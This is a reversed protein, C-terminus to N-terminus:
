EQDHPETPVRRYSGADSATGAESSIGLMGPLASMSRPMLTPMGYRVTRRAVREQLLEATRRMKLAGLLEALKHHFCLFNTVLGIQDGKDRLIAMVEEEKEVQLCATMEEEDDGKGNFFFWDEKKAALQLEASHLLRRGAGYKFDKSNELVYKPLPVQKFFKSFNRVAEQSGVYGSGVKRPRDSDCGESCRDIPEPEEKVRVGADEMLRKFGSRFRPRQKRSVEYIEEAKRELKHIMHGIPLDGEDEGIPNEMEDALCDFGLLCCFLIFPSVVNAWFGEETSLTLPYIFVFALFLLKCHQLYALPLPITILRELEEFSNAILSLRTEGITLVRELTGWRPDIAQHLADRLLQMLLMPLPCATKPQSEEEENDDQCKVQKSAQRAMVQGVITGDIDAQLKIGCADLLIHEEPLLLGKLRVLEFIVQPLEEETFEGDPRAVMSCHFKFAVAFALCLRIVNVTTATAIADWHACIEEVDGRPLKQLDLEPSGRKHLFDVVGEPYDIIHEFRDLNGGRMYSCVIGIVQELGVFMTASQDKGQEYRQYCQNLRWILLFSVFGSLFKVSSSEDVVVIDLDFHVFIAYVSSIYVLYALGGRWILSIVGGRLVFIQTFWRSVYGRVFDDTLDSLVRIM